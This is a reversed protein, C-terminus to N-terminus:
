SSLRLKQFEPILRFDTRVARLPEGRQLIRSEEIIGLRDAAMRLYEVKAPDMGMVRCCTADVAPLDSGM